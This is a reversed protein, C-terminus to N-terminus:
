GHISYGITGNTASIDSISSKHGVLRISTPEIVSTFVVRGLTWQHLNLTERRHLQSQLVNVALDLSEQDKTLIDAIARSFFATISKPLGQAIKPQGQKRIAKCVADTGRHAKGLSAARYVSDPRIRSLNLVKRIGYHYLFPLVMLKQKKVLGNARAYMVMESLKCKPMYNGALLLTDFITAFFSSKAGKGTKTSIPVLADVYEVVSDIGAFNGATPIYFACPFLSSKFYWWGVLLEAFCVGLRRIDKRSMGSPWRIPKKPNRFFRRFSLHLADPLEPHRLIGDLISNELQKATVFKVAAFPQDYLTITVREGKALFHNASLLSITRHIPKAIASESIRRRQGGILVLYKSSYEEECIVEIPTRASVMGMRTQGFEDFLIARRNTHTAVNGHCFYKLWKARGRSAM